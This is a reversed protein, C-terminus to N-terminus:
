YGGWRFAGDEGLPSYPNFAVEWVHGDPDCFYGIYGGWFIEGAPKLIRGGAQVALELVPAVEEKTAVNYALTMGSFGGIADEPIGLDEALMAKSYLGLTQGILNYAVVEEPDDPGTARQWGLADYFRASAQVDKVALTILSVRQGVGDGSSSM